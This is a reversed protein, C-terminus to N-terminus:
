LRRLPGLRADVGESYRVRPEEDPEPLGAAALLSQNLDVVTAERLPWPPHDTPVVAPHGRVRTYGRWRGTLWEDLPSSDPRDPGVRVTIDHGVSPRLRRRSRYRVTEGGTVEMDAWRYPVGYLTSAGVVLPLSAAELSFFWIGDKGGPVQVYTRLNTEPFTSLRPVAPLPGLRFGTMVFATIGVWARGEWTDVEFPPPLLAQIRAPEFSWHLFTM